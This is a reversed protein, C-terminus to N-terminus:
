PSPPPPSQPPAPPSSQAPRTSTVAEMAAQLAMDAIRSVPWLLLLTPYVRDRVHFFHFRGDEDIFPIDIEPHNRDVFYHKGFPRPRFYLGKFLLLMSRTAAAAQTQKIAHSSHFMEWLYRVAGNSGHNNELFRRFIHSAIADVAHLLLQRAGNANQEVEIATFGKETMGLCFKEMIEGATEDTQLEGLSTEILPYSKEDIFEFFWPRIYTRFQEEQAHQDEGFVGFGLAALMRDATSDARSLLALMPLLSETNIYLTVFIGSRQSQNMQAHESDDRAGVM